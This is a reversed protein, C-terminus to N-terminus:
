HASKTEIVQCLNSPNKQVLAIHGKRQLGPKKYLPRYGLEAWFCKLRSGLKFIAVEWIPGLTGELMGFFFVLASTRHRRLM